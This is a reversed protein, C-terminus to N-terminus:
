TGEEKPPLPAIWGILLFLGGLILFALVRTLTPAGHLDVLLLKLLDAALLGTGTRWM